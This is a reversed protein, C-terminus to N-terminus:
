PLLLDTTYQMTWDQHTKKGIDLDELTRLIENASLEKSGNGATGGQKPLTGFIPKFGEFLNEEDFDFDELRLGYVHPGERSKPPITAPSFSSNKGMASMTESVMGDIGDDNYLEQRFSDEFIPTDAIPRGKEDAFVAQLVESDRGELDMSEEEEATASRHLQLKGQAEKMEREKQASASRVFHFKKPGYVESMKDYQQQSNKKTVALTTLKYFLVMTSVLMMMDHDNHHRCPYHLSLLRSLSLPNKGDYKSNKIAAAAFAQFKKRIATLDEGVQIVEKAEIRRPVYPKVPLKEFFEKNIDTIGMRGAEESSAVTSEEVHRPLRTVSTYSRRMPLVDSPPLQVSDNSRHSRKDSSNSISDALHSPIEITKKNHIGEKISETIADGINQLSEMMLDDTYRPASLPARFGEKEAAKSRVRLDSPHHARQKADYSNLLYLAGKETEVDYTAKFDHNIDAVLPIREVTSVIKSPSGIYKDPIKVSYSTSAESGTRSRSRRDPSIQSKAIGRLPSSPMPRIATDGGAARWPMRKMGDSPYGHTMKSQMHANGRSPNCQDILQQNYLEMNFANICNSYIAYNDGDNMDITNATLQILDVAGPLKHAYSAVEPSGSILECVALFVRKHAYAYEEKSQLSTSVADRPIPNATTTGRTIISMKEYRYLFKLLLKLGAWDVISTLPGTQAPKEEDAQANFSYKNISKRVDNKSQSDEASPLECTSTKAIILCRERPHPTTRNRNLIALIIDACGAFLLHRNKQLLLISLIYSLCSNSKDVRKQRKPPSRKPLYDKTNYSYNLKRFDVKPKSSVGYHQGADLRPANSAQLEHNMGSPGDHSDSSVIISSSEHLLQNVAEESIIMMSALLSLTLEQISPNFSTTLISICITVYSADGIKALSDVIWETITTSAARSMGPKKDTHESLKRRLITIVTILLSLSCRLIHINQLNDLMMEFLYKPGDHYVFKYVQGSKDELITLPVVIGSSNAAEIFESRFYRFKENLKDDTSQPIIKVARPVPPTKVVKQAKTLKPSDLRDNNPTAVNM